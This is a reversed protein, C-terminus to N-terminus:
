VRKYENSIRLMYEPLNTGNHIRLVLDFRLNTTVKLHVDRDLCYLAEDLQCEDNEVITRIFLTSM